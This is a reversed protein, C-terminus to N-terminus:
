LCAALVPCAAVANRGAQKWVNPAVANRCPAERRLPSADELTQSGFHKFLQDRLPAPLNKMEALSAIRKVYLWDWIQKARFAPQGQEKCFAELEELLLGHISVLPMLTRGCDSCKKTQCSKCYISGCSACKEGCNRCTVHGSSCLIIEKVEKGCSKCYIPSVAKKIPNYTMEIMKYNNKDIGLTLNLHYIPFYIITTNLLKNDIKLGHKRIEKQIFEEEEDRIKKKNNTQNLNEINKAIKKIKEKDGKNAEMQKKLSNEQAEIESINNEYHQHIRSIEDNLQKNLKSKLEETKLLLVKKLEEKALSYEKDASVEQFDRKNGEVLELSEDFSVINGNQVFIHSIFNEKENIYQFTTVFSFKFIFNNSITKNINKIESNLFPIKKPLENKFDLNYNIRLLTTEGRGELFERITKVLYYSQSVLEYGQRKYM